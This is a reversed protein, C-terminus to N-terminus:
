KLKFNRFIAFVENKNKDYSFLVLGDTGCCDAPEVTRGQKIKLINEASTYLAKLQSFGYSFLTSVM